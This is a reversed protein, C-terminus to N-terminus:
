DVDANLDDPSLNSAESQFAVFRGDASIAPLSSLDTAKNGNAGNARSVLTTTNQQLDRVFVDTTADADNPLNTANSQFAVFRGDASVAPGESDGNSNVGFLGVRSVLTTDFQAAGAPTAVVGLVATVLAPLAALVTTKKPRM